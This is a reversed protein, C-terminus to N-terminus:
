KYWDYPDVKVDDFSDLANAKNVSTATGPATVIDVGAKEAAMVRHHGEVVLDGDVKVPSAPDFGNVEMDAALRDVQPGSVAKQTPRLGGSKAVYRYADKFDGVSLPLLESAASMGALARQNFPVASNSAIAVDSVFDATTAAFDGGKVIYKITKTAISRGDPDVYKYPNNNAYAYRNFSMPNSETFRVPDDSLFRGLAPDYYRAGAYVLGNQEEVHGTYGVRNDGDAGSAKGYPEYTKRWIVDGAQNMAVVPSGLADTAYYTFTLSGAQVTSISLFCGLVLWLLAHQIKHFTIM